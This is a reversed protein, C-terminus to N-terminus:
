LIILLKQKVRLDSNMYNYFSDYIRASPINMIALKSLFLKDSDSMVNFIFM